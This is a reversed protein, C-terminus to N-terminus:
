QHLPVRFYSNTEMDLYMDRICAAIVKRLRLRENPTRNRANFSVPKGVRVCRTERHVALPYFPLSGGTKEYYYEGLRTFGKKFPKMRTIPDAEQDPDEPFILLSKGDVLSKLSHQYTERLRKGNYVAICGASILLRTSIKSIWNSVLLSTPPSLNLQPEVFDERLYEGAQDLDLMESIVWPYVRLPLSAIVAIPGTAGLHNSVFVAPGSEPLHDGGHLEGGWLFADFTGTILRYSSDNM